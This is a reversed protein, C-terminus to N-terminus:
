KRSYRQAKYTEVAKRTSRWVGDSGRHAELRGRVAAQKLAPLALEEDALVEWNADLDVESRTVVPM